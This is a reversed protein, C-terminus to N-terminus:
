CGGRLALGRAIEGAIEDAEGAPDEAQRIPRGVVLYDAGEALASEAEATDHVSRGIWWAPHLRRADSVALCGHGLQVGAAGAALAIDLRDNVFRRGPLRQALEFHERGSLGRGRAHLAVNDGGAAVLARAVADMDARRAIREDTVSHVRPLPAKM